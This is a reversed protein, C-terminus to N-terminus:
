PEWPSAIIKDPLPKGSHWNEYWYIQNNGGSYYRKQDFVRADISLGTSGHVLTGIEALIPSVIRSILGAWLLRQPFMVYGNEDSRREDFGKVGIFSYHEWSQEVKVNALPQGQEDVVLLKWKPVMQTPFPMFLLLIAGFITVTIRWERSLKNAWLSM